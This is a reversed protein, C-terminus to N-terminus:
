FILLQLLLSYKNLAFKWAPNVPESANRMMDPKFQDYIIELCRGDNYTNESM